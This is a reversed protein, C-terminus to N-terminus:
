KKSPYPVGLVGGRILCAVFYHVQNIPIDSEDGNLTKTMEELGEVNLLSYFDNESKETQKRVPISNKKSFGFIEVPILGYDGCEEKNYMNDIRRLANGIKQPHTAAQRLKEGTKRDQYFVSDLNKSSKEESSNVFEQSPFIEFGGPLEGKIEVNLLLSKNSVSLADAFDSVLLSIDGEKVLIDNIDILINEDFLNDIDAVISHQKNASVWKITIEKNVALRNRWLVSGSFLSSLYKRALVQFGDKEKYLEVFTKLANRGDLNNCGHPEKSSNNIGLGFKFIFGNAEPHLFCVDGTFINGEGPKQKKERDSVPYNSVAGIGSMKVVEVPTISQDDFKNFWVGRTPNISRCYSLMSALSTKKSM